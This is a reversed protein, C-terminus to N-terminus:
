NESKSCPRRWTNSVGLHFAFHARIATGLLSILENRISPGFYHIYNEDTTICQVHQMISEFKALMEIPGVFNKNNDQNLRCNIGCFPDHERLFKVILILRFLVNRWHDREKELKGQALKILQRM